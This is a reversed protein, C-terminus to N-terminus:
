SDLFDAGICDKHTVGRARIRDTDADTFDVGILTAGALSADALNANKLIVGSLEAEILRTGTLSTEILQVESLCAESLDAGDLLAGSLNAKEMTLHRLDARRLDMSGPDSPVDPPVDGLAQVAAQVDERLGATKSPEQGDAPPNRVYACLLQAVQHAYSHPAEARLKALTYIGGLRVSIRDHGLAEAGRYYRGDRLGQEATEGQLKLSREQTVAAKAESRAAKLRAEAVRETSELQQQGMRIQEDAARRAFHLQQKALEEQGKAVEIQQQAADAQVGSARAQAEAASVQARAAEVQRDSAAVQARAASVQNDASISRWLAILLAGPSLLLLVLDSLDGATLSAFGIRAWVWWLGFAFMLIAYVMAAKAAGHRSRDRTEGSGSPAADVEADSM